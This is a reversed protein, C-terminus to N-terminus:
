RIGLTVILIYFVIRGQTGCGPLLTTEAVRQKIDCLPYLFVIRGQTGLGLLLTTEAM